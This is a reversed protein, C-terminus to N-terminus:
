SKEAPEDLKAWTADCVQLIRKANPVSLVREGSLWGYLTRRPIELQAAVLEVGGASAVLSRLTRLETTM